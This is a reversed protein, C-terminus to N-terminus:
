LRHVVAVQHDKCQESLRPKRATIAPFGLDGLLAAVLTPTQSKPAPARPLQEGRPPPSESPGTNRFSAQVPEPNAPDPDITAAHSLPTGM